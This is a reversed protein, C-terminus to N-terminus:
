DSSVKGTVVKSQYGNAKTPRFWIIKPSRVVRETNKAFDKEILIADAEPQNPLYGFVQVIEKDRGYLLRQGIIQRNLDTLNVNGTANFLNLPGIRPGADLPDAPRTTPGTPAESAEDFRAMMEDCSLNTKRGTPIDKGYDPIKLGAVKSLVFAGSRHVMEVDGKLVVVREKQSLEMSKTWKFASLTPREIGQGGKAGKKRPMPKRYDEAIMSGPTDMNVMGTVTNYVLQDGKLLVRRLLLDNPDKRQSTLTVREAATLRVLKRRSYDTISVPGRDAALAELDRPKADAPKTAASEDKGAPEAFLAEMSQCEMRDGGSEVIVDGTFDAVSYNRAALGGSVVAPSYEMGKGWKINIDRPAALTRGNLDRDTLFTMEGKGIVEAFQRAEISDSKGPRKFVYHRQALHITRGSLTNKGQQLVAPKLVGFLDATRKILDSKIRDAKASVPRSGRADKVKVNGKALLMAPKARGSFKAPGATADDAAVQEETFIVTIERGSIESGEQRAHANGTAVAKAPLVKGSAGRGMWVHLEDANVYDGSKGQKLKVDGLFTTEKIFRKSDPDGPRDSGFVALVSKTWRIEDPVERDPQTAPMTSPRTDPEPFNEADSPPFYPRQMFGKGLLRAHGRARDFEISRSVIRENQATYLEAPGKEGTLRGTQRENNYTFKTCYATAEGDDLVVRKGGAVIDYRKRSPKPTFGGPRLVLPGDWEITLPRRKPESPRTSPAPASTPQNALIEPV